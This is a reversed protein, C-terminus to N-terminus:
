VKIEEFNVKYNWPVVEVWTHGPNLRVEKDDIYFITREFAPSYKWSGDQCKNALCIVANGSGNTKITRRGQDDLVYSKVYQVLVNDASIQTGDADKHDSGAMRRRYNNAIFDYKYQVYFLPSKYYINIVSRTSSAIPEKKAATYLWSHYDPVAADQSNKLEIYKYINEGSTYVNHPASRSRDRWFYGGQYFENLDFVREAKIKTLADPSGGCHIYLAGYEESWDIYYPRASRIPGISDIKEGTAYVALFRTIGGEAEAEYVISAKSLSSPPRSDVHNEIMLAFPALNEQGKEVMVGDLKRKSLDLKKIVPTQGQNETSTAGRGINPQDNKLPQRTMQSLRWFGALMLIVLLALSNIKWFNAKYWNIIREFGTSMSYKLVKSFSDLENCKYNSEYIRPFFLM